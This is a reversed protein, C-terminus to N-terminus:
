KPRYKSVLVVIHLTFLIAGGVLTAIWDVQGEWLNQSILAAALLIYPIFQYPVAAPAFHYLWGVSYLSLVMFGAWLLM